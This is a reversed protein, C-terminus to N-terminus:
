EAMLAEAAAGMTVAVLASVFCMFAFSM